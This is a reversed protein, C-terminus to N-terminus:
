QYINARATQSQPKSSSDVSRNPSILLGHSGATPYAKQGNAHGNYRHM